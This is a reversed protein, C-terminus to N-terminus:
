STVQAPDAKQIQRVLMAYVISALVLCGFIIIMVAQSGNQEFQSGVFWPITMAGISAGIFFYSTITGNVNTNREALTLTTPFISAMCLGLGITGVWVTITSSPALLMFGLSILCGALDIFLIARARLRTAIPISILRGLTLSAWFISTLYAATTLTGTDTAIAYSYIWGGYAIEAGSYLFFFTAILIILPWNVAGAVAERATEPMTPSPMKFVYFIAPLMLLALLWFAWQVGASVLIVQAVIVPALFSGVGFFFHLGNMYPGVARGHVWVILTNSGIDIGSQSMGMLFLVATLIWITPAVPMLAMMLALGFLALTLLKHGPVRDYLRGVLLTSVLFGIARATFLIGIQSMQTGTQDALWPLTPGLVAAALGLSIYGLYYGITVKKASNM